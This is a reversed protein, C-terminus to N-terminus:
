KINGNRMRHSASIKARTEVSVKHGMMKAIAEPTHKKGLNVARLKAKTEATLKRGKNAVSIKKKTEDSSRRERQKQKVEESHKHGLCNQKGKNSKSIKAKHEESLPKRKGRMKAKAEDTHCWGKNRAPIGKRSESIKKKHEDSLPIGKRADSMRKRSEVSRRQGKTKQNGIQALSLKARIEITPNFLGEGGATLNYGNPSRSSMLNITEIEKRIMEERSACNCLKEFKFSGKGYKRLACHLATKANKVFASYIHDHRRDCLRKTTQGIYIKGNENNIVKYIIFRKKETGIPQNANLVSESKQCDQIGNM